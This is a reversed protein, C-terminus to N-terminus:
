SGLAVEFALRRVQSGDISILCEYVGPSNIWIPGSFVFVSAVKGAYSVADATESLESDFAVQSTRSPDLIEVSLVPQPDEERRRIRGAVYLTFLSPLTDAEVQTFSAGVATITGDQTRAFEALFAYDLEAAM